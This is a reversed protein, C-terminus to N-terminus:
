EANLTQYGTRSSHKSACIGACVLGEGNGQNDDQESLRSMYFCMWQNTEATHLKSEWLHVTMNGTILPLRRWLSYNILASSNHALNVIFWWDLSENGQRIM